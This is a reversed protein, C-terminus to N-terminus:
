PRCARRSPGSTFTTCWRREPCWGMDALISSISLNRPVAELLVDVSERVLGWSSILVLLSVVVSVIPDALYWQWFLMAIGAVIAGVSGLADGLVHLFAGRVNLNEHQSRYLLAATLLNAGLGVAATVLMPLSRVPPPAAFRHYAEYVIYAAVLGLFVGNVLAAM